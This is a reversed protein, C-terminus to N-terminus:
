SGEFVDIKDGAKLTVIAKKWNKTYGSTKGQRKFKGKCNMTNVNIVKVKFAKEVSNAIAEKSVKTNVEFSYKNQELLKYSRESVIPKILVKTYDIM